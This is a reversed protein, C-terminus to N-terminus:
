IMSTKMSNAFLSGPIGVTWTMGSILDQQRLVIRGMLDM